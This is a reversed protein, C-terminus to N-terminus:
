YMSQYLYDALNNRPNLTSHLRYHQDLLIQHSESDDSRIEVLIWKPRYKYFDIGKLVAAENGEVDLSLLDIQSPADCEELISHLTRAIAGYKCIKQENNALLAGKEAHTHATLDDVQLGLAVSMLDAEAMEVFQENYDFPVCAAVVIHPRIKFARNQSCISYYKPNPEILIGTWNFQYQLVYTNSQRVGDNAGLEIFYGENRPEIIEIIKKDLKGLGMYGPIGYSQKWYNYFQYIGHPLLAKLFNLM